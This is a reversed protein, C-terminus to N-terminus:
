FLTESQDGGQDGESHNYANDYTGLARLLAAVGDALIVPPLFIAKSQWIDM